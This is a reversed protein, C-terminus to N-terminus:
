HVFLDIIESHIGSQRLRSRSGQVIEKVLEPTTNLFTAIEGRDRGEALWCFLQRDFHEIPHAEYRAGLAVGDVLRAIVASSLFTGGKDIVRLAAALDDQVKDTLVFARAGVGFASLVYEQDESASVFVIMPKPQLAAIATAAEVGSPVLLQFDLIVIDPALYQSLLIAERGTAAEGLLRFDAERALIQRLNARIIPHHNALLIRFPQM